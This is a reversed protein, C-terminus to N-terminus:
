DGIEEELRQIDEKLKTIETDNMWTDLTEDTEEELVRIYQELDEICDLAQQFLGSPIGPIPNFIEYLALTRLEEKLKVTEIHNV